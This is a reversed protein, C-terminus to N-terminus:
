AEAGAVFNYPPWPGTVELEVGATSYRTALSAVVEDIPRRSTVLYAGNLIMEGPHGSVERQQPANVRADEAVAALAAHVAAACDQEFRQRADDLMRELQRRLMYARGEPASRIQADLEALSADEGRLADALRARDVFAKVGLEFRGRLRGLTAALEDAERVLFSRVAAEDRYVTGFRFPVVTTAGLTRELVEEHASARAIVWEPDQLREALQAEDFEDLPVKSVIAAVRGEEVVFPKSTADLARAETLTDNLDAGPETVGYVYWADRNEAASM